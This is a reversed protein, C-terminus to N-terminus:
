AIGGGSMHIIQRFAEAAVEKDGQDLAGAGMRAWDIVTTGTPPAPIAEPTGDGDTANDANRSADDQELERIGIDNV